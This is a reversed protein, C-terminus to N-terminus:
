KQHNTNKVLEMTKADRFLKNLVDSTNKEAIRRVVDEDPGRYPHPGEVALEEESQLEKLRKVIKLISM